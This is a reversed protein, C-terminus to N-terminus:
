SKKNKAWRARGRASVSRIIIGVVSAGIIGGSIGLAAQLTLLGYDGALDYAGNVMASMTSYLLRGPALTFMAPTLYVPVPTKTVRAMVECYIAGILAAILNPFFEGGDTFVLEYLLLYVTITLAAGVAAPPMKKPPIYFLVAFGMVGITCAVARVLIEIALDNM